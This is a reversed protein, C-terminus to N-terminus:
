NERIYKLLKENSCQVDEPILFGNANSLLSFGEMIQLRPFKIANRECHHVFKLIIFADFWHNFAENMRHSSDRHNRCISQWNKSFCNINLFSTIEPSGCGELIVDLNSLNQDKFAKNVLTYLQKLIMFIEPHHLLIIKGEIIDKIRPGTGFPVRNSPRSAPYVISTNIQGVNGTKRLAQMFYFDEGGNRERMGGAKIYASAPCVIASGLSHYAYPSGAFALGTVYYRMYLEYDVIAKNVLGDADPQHEFRFVAGALEPNNRFYLEAAYIYDPDVLTDSDLSFLLATPNDTLFSLCALAADLGIKRAEGVGGELSIELGPSTADIWFLNTGPQLGSCYDPAGCRFKQLLLQNDEKMEEDTKESNNIVVLIMVSSDPYKLLAQHLSLLTAPLSKSEALAPIVIVHRYSRSPSPEIANHRKIKALYKNIKNERNM